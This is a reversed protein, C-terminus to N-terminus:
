DEDGNLKPKPMWYKVRGFDIYSTSTTCGWQKKNSCLYGEHISGSFIFLINEGVEPLEIDVSVWLNDLAYLAGKVFGDKYAKSVEENPSVDKFRASKFRRILIDNM